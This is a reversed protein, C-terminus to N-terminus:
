GAELKNGDLAEKLTALENKLKMIEHDKDIEGQHPAEKPIEDNERQGCRVKGLYILMTPHGELAKAYQKAEILLEGVRNFSENVTHYNEGYREKFKTRLTNESIGYSQAIRTQSAGAKMYLEIMEWEKENIEKKWAM